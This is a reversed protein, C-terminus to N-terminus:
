TNRHGLHLEHLYHARSEVETLRGAAHISAQKLLEQAASDTRLRVADPDEGHSKLYEDIFALELKAQPEQFAPVALPDAAM